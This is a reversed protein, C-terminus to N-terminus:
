CTERPVHVQGQEVHFMRPQTSLMNILEEPSIGTIFVQARLQTLIDAVFRRKESDLESPLDDILYIPSRLNLKQLLIGQALHLAYAALKQQGQSLADAVPTKESFLQLDARQPGYQTYGLQQDRLLHSALVEDLTKDQTWGRSYRLHLSLEPLVQQLLDALIPQLCAIYNKRYQDIYTASEVIERTWITLEGASVQNKLGANRQKLAKQLRQWISYFAPEVHFVGWDLFQRRPQAGDHFYRHSETTLLQLPLQRALPSLSTVTEGNIRIKKDGQRSREMGVPILEEDNQIHAFLLFQDAHQNIIRQNLHTRFSRGLGLFYIAELISTKGSGNQGYFVNIGVQPEIATSIINRFQNIVLKSIPM